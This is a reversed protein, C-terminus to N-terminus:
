CETDKKNDDTSHISEEKGNNICHPEPLITQMKQVTSDNEKSFMSAREESVHVPRINIVIQKQRRSPPCHALSLHSSLNSRGFFVSCGRGGGRGREDMNVRQNRDTRNTKDRFCQNDKFRRYTRLLLYHVQM